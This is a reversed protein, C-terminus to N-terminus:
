EDDDDGLRDDGLRDDQGADAQAWADDLAARVAPRLYLADVGGHERLAAALVAVQAEPPHLRNLMVVRDGGVACLGGRFAGRERRVRVGLQRLAEELAAAVAPPKM